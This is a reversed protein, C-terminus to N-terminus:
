NGGEPIISITTGLSSALFRRPKHRIELNDDNCRDCLRHYIGFSDFKKDCKLCFKYKFDLKYVGKYTVSQKKRNITALKGLKVVLTHKNCYKKNPARSYLVIKCGVAGCPIHLIPRKLFINKNKKYKTM